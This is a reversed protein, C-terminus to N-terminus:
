AVSPNRGLRGCLDSEEGQVEDSVIELPEPHGLVAKEALERM